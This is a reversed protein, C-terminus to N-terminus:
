SIICSIPRRKRKKRQYKAIKRKEQPQARRKRQTELREERNKKWYDANRKSIREKNKEVYEKRVTDKERKESSEDSWDNSFKLARDKIENWSLVM